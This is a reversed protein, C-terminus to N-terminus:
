SKKMLNEMMTPISTRFRTKLIVSPNKALVATYMHYKRDFDIIIKGVNSEIVELNEM